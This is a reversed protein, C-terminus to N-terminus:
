GPRTSGILPPPPAVTRPHTSRTPAPPMAAGAASASAAPPTRSIRTASSSSTSIVFRCRCIRNSASSTPRGFSSAKASASRRRWGVSRISRRYPRKVGLAAAARIGPTDTTTSAVSLKADRNRM